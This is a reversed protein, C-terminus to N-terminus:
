HWCWMVQVSQSKKTTGRVSRAPNPALSVRDQVKSALCKFAVRDKVKELYTQATYEPSRMQQYTQMKISGSM